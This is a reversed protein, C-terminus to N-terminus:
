DREALVLLISFLLLQYFAVCLHIMVRIEHFDPKKAIENTIYKSELQGAKLRFWNSQQKAEDGHNLHHTLFHTGYMREMKHLTRRDEKSLIEENLGPLATKKRASQMGHGRGKLAKLRMMYHQYDKIENLDMEDMMAPYVKEYFRSRWSLIDNFNITM